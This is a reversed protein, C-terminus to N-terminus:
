AEKDIKELRIERKWVYLERCFFFGSHAHWKALGPELLGVVNYTLLLESFEPTLSHSPLLKPASAKASPPL